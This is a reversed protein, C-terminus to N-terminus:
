ASQIAGGVGQASPGDFGRGVAGGGPLTMTRAPRVVTRQVALTSSLTGGHITPWPLPQTVASYLMSGPLVAGRLARSRPPLTSPRVVSIWRSM